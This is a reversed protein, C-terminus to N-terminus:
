EKIKFITIVAIILSATIAFQIGILVKRLISKSNGSSQVSKLANLPKIKSLYFAPYFGSLLTIIMVFGVMFLVWNVSWLVSMSLNVDILQNFSNLVLDVLGISLLLACSCIVLTEMLFQYRLSKQKAGLVKKVGIEKHRKSAMVTMLNMFNIAAIGIILLAISGFLYVQKRSGNVGLEGRLDSDLHISNISQLGLEFADRKGEPYFRSTFDKISNAFSNATTNEGLIAYTYFRSFNWNNTIFNGYVSGFPILIDFGFHTNDPLSPIVAVVQYESVNKIKLIKGVVNKDRWDLGFYKQATNETIVM